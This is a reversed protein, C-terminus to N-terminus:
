DEKATAIVLAERELLTPEEGLLEAVKSRLSRIQVPSTALWITDLLREREAELHTIEKGVQDEALLQGQQARQRKAIAEFVEQPLPLEIGYKISISDPIEDLPVGSLVALMTRQVRLRRRELAAGEARISELEAYTEALGLTQLAQLHSERKVRDFLTPHRAKIAEIRKAIRTSIRDKWFDRETVTLGAM